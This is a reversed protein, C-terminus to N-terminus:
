PAAAIADAHLSTADNATLLRAIPLDLAAHYPALGALVEPRASAAVGVSGLPANMAEFHTRHGDNIDRYHAEEDRLRAALRPRRRCPHVGRRGPSHTRGRRSRRTGM